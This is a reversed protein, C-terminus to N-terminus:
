NKSKIRQLIKWIGWIVVFWFFINLIMLLYNTSGGGFMTGRSFKLPFGAEGALLTNSILADVFAAGYTVVVSLILIVVFAKKSM